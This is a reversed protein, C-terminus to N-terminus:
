LHKADIGRRSLLKFFNKIAKETVAGTTPWIAGSPSSVTSAKRRSFSPPQRVSRVWFLVRASVPSSGPLASIASAKPTM